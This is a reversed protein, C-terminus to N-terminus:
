WDVKKALIIELKQKDEQYLAQLQQTLEANLQPKATTFLRSLIFYDIAMIFFNVLKSVLNNKRELGAEKLNFVWANRLRIFRLRALAYVGQNARFGQPEQLVQPTIDIHQCINEIVKQIDQKIENELIILLQQKKFIKLYDEIHKGYFGYEIVQQAAPYAHALNKNLIADMGQNLSQVPLFGLKILHFYSSIARKVPDRLTIILKINPAYQFLKEAIEVKTLYNPRRLGIKKNFIDKKPWNDFFAQIEELSDAQEFIKVEEDPIFVQPHQALMRHLFTSATKQAGIMAFDPVITKM